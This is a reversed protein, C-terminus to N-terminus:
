PSKAAAAQRILMSDPPVLDVGDPDNLYGPSRGAVGAHGYQWVITHTAPNVVIIRDNFDDNILIDGNPLPLALSPHNLGGFRWLLRGHRNFEVVQGPDSYDATILRGPRVQNTDSPYAVGPPHVSWCVHGSPDLSTAWDGNIETILLRGQPTPFAGNPSAFRWPPAHWCGGSALGSAPGLVRLPRHAPPAILLVRCNMIDAVLIHGDPLLMADDPNALRNRGSGQTGPRGYRYVIRHAAISIVSVVQDTEQTAVIFRGDPSFFADDPARFTQGRALDGPRPFTWRVRGQPDIILLRNNQHDAVLVDAPLALPNSGPALHGPGRAPALWPAPGTSPTRLTTPRAAGPGAREGSHASAPRVPPSETRWHPAAAIVFAACAAAGGIAGMWRVLRRVRVSGDHQPAHM